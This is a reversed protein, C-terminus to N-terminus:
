TRHGPGFCWPPHSCCGAEGPPPSAGDPLCVEWRHRDGGVSRMLWVTSIRFCVTSMSSFPTLSFSVMTSVGPKPSATFLESHHPLGPKPPLVQGAPGAGAAARMSGERVAPRVCGRGAAPLGDGVVHVLLKLLIETVLAAEVALVDLVVPHVAAQVEDRRKPVPAHSDQPWPGGAEESLWWLRWPWEERLGGGARGAGGRGWGRVVRAAGRLSRGTSTPKMFARCSFTFMTGRMALASQRTGQSIRLSLSRTLMCPLPDPGPSPESLVLHASGLCCVGWAWPVKGARSSVAKGGQLDPFLNVLEPDM